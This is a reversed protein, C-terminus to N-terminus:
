KVALVPSSRIDGRKPSTGSKVSFPIQRFSDKVIVSGLSTFPNICNLCLYQSIILINITQYVYGTLLFTKVFPPISM